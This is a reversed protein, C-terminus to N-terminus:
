RTGGRESLIEYYKNVLHRYQPPCEERQFDKLREAELQAALEAELKNSARRVVKLLDARKQADAALAQGLVDPNQSATRLQGAEAPAFQRGDLHGVFTVVDAAVRNGLDRRDQGSLTGRQATAQAGQGGQEETGQGAPHEAGQGAPHEAGQGAPTQAGEQGAPQGQEAGAPRGQEGGLQELADAIRDAEFRARALESKYDSALTGAAERLSDLVAGIGAVAKEQEAAATKPRAADLEVAANTMKQVVQHRALGRQAEEVGRATDPKGGRQVMDRLGDIEAKLRDTDVRVEGQRFALRGLDRQRAADPTGGADPRAAAAATQTGVEGQARLIREAHRMALDVAQEVGFRQLGAVSEAAEKLNGQARQIGAVAQDMNGQRLDAAARFMDRAADETKEAMRAFGPDVGALEKADMAVAKAQGALAEQGAALAAAPGGSAAPAGTPSAPQQGGQAGPEERGAQAGAEPATQGGAEQGAQGAPQEGGQAAQPKGGEPNGASTQEAMAVAQELIANEAARLDEAKKALEEAEELKRLERRYGPAVVTVQSVGGAMDAAKAQAMFYAIQALASDPQPRAGAGGAAEAVLLPSDSMGLDTLEAVGMRLYEVAKASDHAVLAAHGKKALEIVRLGQEKKSPPVKKMEIFPFVAGTNPDVMSRAVEECQRNFEDPPLADKQVHVHWVAALVVALPSWRAGGHAFEPYEMGWTAWQEFPVIGLFYIDTLGVQGKQDRAELHYTIMAGPAPRPRQDELAWLYTGVYSRGRPNEPDAQPALALPVRVQPAGEALGTQYVLDLSAVAFDDAAEAVVTVQGLPHTSIDIKPHKVAVAPPQDKLARVFSPVDAALEQGDRDRVRFTYVGDAEV